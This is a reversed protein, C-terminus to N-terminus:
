ADTEGTHPRAKPQGELLRELQVRPVVVRRGLRLSPLEGSRVLQYCQRRGIKLIRAVEAVDLVAPSAQDLVVRTM